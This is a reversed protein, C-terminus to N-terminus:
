RIFKSSCKKGNVNVTFIYIGKPIDSIDISGKTERLNGSRIIAHNAISTLTYSINDNESIKEEKLNYKLDNDVTLELVCSLDNRLDITFPESENWGNENYYTLKFTSTYKRDMFATFYGQNVDAIYTFPVPYDSDTQEVLIEKCGETNKFGIEVDLYEHDVTNFSRSQARIKQPSNFETNRTYSNMSAEPVQPPFDYLQYEVHGNYYGNPDHSYYVHKLRVYGDSTRAYDEEKSLDGYSDFEKWAGDRMLVFKGQQGFEALNSVYEDLGDADSASTVTKHGYGTQTDQFPIVNGTSAPTIKRSYAADDYDNWGCKDFFDDISKGIHRIVSGKAIGPQMFLTEPNSPDDQFYSLSFRNDFDVPSYLKWQKISANGSTAYQYNKIADNSLIVSTFRNCPVSMELGQEGTKAATCMFGIAKGIAQIAVTVFDYKGDAIESGNINYDFVNRSTFTIIADPEDRIYEISPCTWHSKIQGFRKDYVKDYGSYTYSSNINVTALCQQEPIDSLKVSLRIPYTTPIKEEWLRCAHEFAGKMTNTIKGDGDDYDVNIITGGAISRMDTKELITMPTDDLAFICTSNNQANLITCFMCMCIFFTKRM